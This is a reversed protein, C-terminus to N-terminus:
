EREGITVRVQQTKSSRYKDLQVGKLEPVASYNVRGEQWYKTVAVGAGAVRPHNALDILAKRRTEALAEARKLSASASRYAKAAAAWVEDDRTLTDKDTLEPPTDTAIYSWFDRWTGLLERQRDVDPLVEVLLGQEGDFVWFHAVPAGSVYLQHQVQWYYHEPLKDALAQQWTESDEGASPCKIELILDGYFSIGDLSASMWGDKGVVMPQMINGTEKEYVRRAVSEMDVGRQLCPANNLVIARGTKIQWLKFWTDPEWPSVGMVTAAESANAHLARHRHWESSGHNIELVASM